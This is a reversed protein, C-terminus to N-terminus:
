EFHRVQEWAAGIPLKPQRNVYIPLHDEYPMCYDCTVTAALRVDGFQLALDSGSVGVTIVVQGTCTGPGWIWYTNHGSIAHPLGYAPGFFDIAGAEGYNQTAICAKAREDPPLAAYVQAVGAVQNEWGFRDAFWQPLVATQHREMQVGADGGMPGYVRGFTAPPLIPMAVPALALGALALVGVYAPRLWRRAARTWAELRLAGAAFLIPYAPSLFYAKAQTVGFLIFLIVFVWGLARYRKGVSSFYFTLGAIWLPFTAPNATLIQQAVFSQVSGHVLKGGYNAWFGLTAWGHTANWFAYPAFGIAAVVGGALLWRIRLLAREPTLLLAVVVAFGFFLITLKTLFGIGAVFGFLLWLRRNGTQILAVLVLAGLAWWLADLADMSFISGTALFSVSVLSALAALFQAFPGGGLRRAILGTAVILAAHAFAPILHLAFLSLGITREILAALAATLLPFDVYGLSLHRGAAIYYLEDRFYGYNQAVLLHGILAVLATLYIAGLADDLLRAGIGSTRPRTRKGTLSISTM